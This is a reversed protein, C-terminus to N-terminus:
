ETSEEFRSRLAELPGYVVLNDGLTLIEQAQPTPIWSKGREIGL